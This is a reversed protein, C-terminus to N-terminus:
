GRAMVVYHGGFGTVLAKDTVPYCSLWALAEAKSHCKHTFVNGMDTLLEVTYCIGVAQLARKAVTKAKRTIKAM